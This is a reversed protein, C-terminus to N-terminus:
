LVDHGFCRSERLLQFNPYGVLVGCCKFQESAILQQGDGIVRPLGEPQIKGLEAREFRSRRLGEVTLMLRRAHGM